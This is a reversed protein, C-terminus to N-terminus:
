VVVPCTVDLPLRRRCALMFLLEKYRASIPCAVLCSTKVYSYGHEKAYDVFAKESGDGFGFFVVGPQWRSWLSKKVPAGIVFTDTYPHREAHKIERRLRKARDRMILRYHIAYKGNLWRYFDQHTWDDAKDDNSFLYVKGDTLKSFYPTYYSNGGYKPHALRYRIVPCEPRHHGYWRTDMVRSQVAYGYGGCDCDWGAAKYDIKLLPLTELQRAVIETSQPEVGLQGTIWERLTKDGRSRNCSVCSWVLNDISDTGGRSLPLVHDLDGDPAIKGCYVCKGDDRARIMKRLREWSTDTFM